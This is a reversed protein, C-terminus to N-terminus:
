VSPVPGPPQLTIRKAGLNTYDSPTCSLVIIQLGRTAALDLMRQLAAVRVPDSNAFADDLVVPLCGAHDQALIEAMALRFAVGVQEMTGGSLTPFDFAGSEQRSLAITQFEGDELSVLAEATPGFLCQLYGSVKDALPRTFQDTLAQQEESFLTNLLQLAQAHRRATALLDLAARESARARALDESPDNTGERRLASTAVALRQGAQSKTEDNQRLARTLRQEDATLSDPQLRELSQRTAALAFDAARKAEAFAQIRQARSGEDGYSSVLQALQGKLGELDKQAHQLEERLTRASKTAAALDRFRAQLAETAATEAAEAQDHTSQCEALLSAAAPADSPRVFDPAAELRRRIDEDTAALRAAADALEQDVTATGELRLVIECRRACATTADVVSKVGLADLEKQLSASAASLKQRTETLGTGGGPTIRLRTEGGVVIETDHSFILPANPEVPKGDAVVPLNGSLVEVRTSIAALSNAIKERDRELNKLKELPEATVSPLAALQSRLEHVQVARRQLKEFTDSQEFQAACLAALERRIRAERFRRAADAHAAEADAHTRRALTEAEERQVLGAERPALAEAERAIRGTLEQIAADASSLKQFEKDQVKAERDQREEHSRLEAVRALNKRTEVLESGLSVLHLDSDAIEKQATEFDAASQELAAFVADRREREGAARAAAAEARGLDSDVKTGRAGYIAACEEAIQAAVRADLESQLVSAAGGGQHLRTLLADKRATALVAPDSGSEGQRVWLHAWQM